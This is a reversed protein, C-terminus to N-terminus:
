KQIQNYALGVILSSLLGCVGHEFNMHLFPLLGGFDSM